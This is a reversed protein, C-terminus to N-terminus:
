KDLFEMGTKVTDGLVTCTLSTGPGHHKSPLPLVELRKDTIAVM